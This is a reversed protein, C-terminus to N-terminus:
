MYGSDKIFSDTLRSRDGGRWPDWVTLLTSPDSVSYNSLDDHNAVLEHIHIQGFPKRENAFLVRCWRRAQLVAVGTMRELDPIINTGIPLRLAPHM